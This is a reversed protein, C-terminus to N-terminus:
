QAVQWDPRTLRETWLLGIAALVAAGVLCLRGLDTQALFRIPDGGVLYGMSIGVFPLCAMLRSTARASALETAVMHEAHEEEALDDAVRAVGASLPAGTRETLRWAAALRALGGAGPRESALRLATPVSSGLRIAGAVPELIPLEGAMGLVAASPLQGTALHGALIRCARAVEVRRQRRLRECRGQKVLRGVTGGGIGVLVAWTWWWPRVAALAVVTAVLLAMPLLRRGPRPKTPRAARDFDLRSAPWSLLIVGVLSLAAVMIM